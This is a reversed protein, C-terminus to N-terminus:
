RSYEEKKHFVLEVTSDSYPNEFDIQNGSITGSLRGDPIDDGYLVVTSGNVTYTGSWSGTEDEDTENDVRKSELTYTSSSIFELTSIVNDGDVEYNAIWTTGALSIDAPNSPGEGGGSDGLVWKLNDPNALSITTIYERTKGSENMSAKMYLTNWGAKLSLSFAKATVTVTVDDDDDDNYTETKEKSSITADRDIYFYEVREETVSTTGVTTVNARNLNYYRSNEIYLFLSYGKANSPSVTLGDDEYDDDIINELSAPTGLTISLQGNKITGKEAMGEAFVILDGKNYAEFSVSPPDENEKLVYVQGSLTMTKGLNHTDTNKDNGIL